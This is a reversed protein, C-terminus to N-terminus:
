GVFSYEYLYHKKIVNKFHHPSKIMSLQLNDSCNGNIKISGSKVISNWLKACSYRISQFGYAKTKIPPIFFHRNVASKLVLNTLHVDSSLRFLPMLDDPLQKYQFDYALRLHHLKIIERVKLLKLDIFIPNASCNYPAFTMIRLCKNQLVQLKNINAESTLGWVSCGHILHSYFIAYYVQLCAELSANFRLKSLIGNARSLKKSLEAVHYDWHLYKDIYLGLYKVQDVAILRKGNFNIYLKEYNLL